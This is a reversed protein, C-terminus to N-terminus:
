LCICVCHLYHVICIAVVFRNNANSRSADIQFRHVPVVLMYLVRVCVDVDQNM